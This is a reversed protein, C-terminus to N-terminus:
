AATLCMSACHMMVRAHYSYISSNNVSKSFDARRIANTGDSDTDCRIMPPSYQYISWHALLMLSYLNCKTTAAEMM